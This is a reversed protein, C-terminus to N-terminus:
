GGGSGSLPLEHERGILYEAVLEGSAQDRVTLISREPPLWDAPLALTLHGDANPVLGELRWRPQTEGVGYIELRCGSECARGGSLLVLALTEAEETLVVLNGSGELESESHRLLPQEAPLLEVVPLNARPGAARETALQRWTSLWGASAVVAALCAALALTWVGRDRMADPPPARREPEVDVDSPERRVTAVEESCRVCVALHSEVVARRRDSMPEALAYDLLLEVPLHGEFLDWATRTDIEEQRCAACTALHAEIRRAEAAELSGNLFAPLLGAIETCDATKDQAGREAM